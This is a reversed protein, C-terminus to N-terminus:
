RRHPQLAEDLSGLRPAQAARAAAEQVARALTQRGGLPGLALFCAVLAGWLLAGLGLHVTTVHLHVSTKVVLVGMAWQVVLTAHALCALRYATRRGARRAWGMAGVTGAIVVLGAVLAGLRHASQVWQRPEQPWWAGACTLVETGCAMSSQSHRVLAGLLIQMLVAFAALAVGLRPGEAALRRSPPPARVLFAMKASWAFFLMSCGLHAISVLAPLRLIVTLGGLLGQFVVLAVGFAAWRRLPQLQSVLQTAALLALTLLGVGAALLRHSHELLIGGQMPPFVQGYCLPWDPCALSAGATHVISGLLLLLFTAVPVVSTLFRAWAM